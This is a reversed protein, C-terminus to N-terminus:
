RLINRRKTVEVSFIGDEDNIVPSFTFLGRTFSKLTGQCFLHEHYEYRSQADPNTWTHGGNFNRDMWELFDSYTEGEYLKVFPNKHNEPVYRKYIIGSQGVLKASHTGANTEVLAKEIGDFFANADTFFKLTMVHAETENGNEFISVKFM